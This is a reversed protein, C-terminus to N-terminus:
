QQKLMGKEGNELQIVYISLVDESTQRTKVRNSFFFCMEPLSYCDNERYFQWKINLSFKIFEIIKQM